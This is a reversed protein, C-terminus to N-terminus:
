TKRHEAHKAQVPWLIVSNANITLVINAFHQTHLM